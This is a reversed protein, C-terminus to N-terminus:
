NLGSKFKFEEEIEIMDNINIEKINEFMLEKLRNNVNENNVTKLIVENTSDEIKDQKKVFM